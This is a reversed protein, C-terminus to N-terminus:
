KNIKRVLLLYNLLFSSIDNLCGLNRVTVTVCFYLLWIKQECCVCQQIVYSIPLWNVYHFWLCSQLRCCVTRHADARTQCSLLEDSKQLLTMLANQTSWSPSIWTAPTNDTCASNILISQDMHCPHCDVSTKTDYRSAAGGWATTGSEQAPPEQNEGGQPPRAGRHAQLSFYATFCPSPPCFM